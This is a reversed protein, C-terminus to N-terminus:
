YASSTVTFYGAFIKKGDYGRFLFICWRFLFSFGGQAGGMGWRSGSLRRRIEDQWAETARESTRRKLTLSVRRALGEEGDRPRGRKAAAGAYLDAMENGEVGRHGPVGETITSGARVLDRAWEIAEVAMEQWPGPHDSRIRQM